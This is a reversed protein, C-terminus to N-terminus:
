VAKELPECIAVRNGARVLMPLYRDLMNYNFSVSLFMEGSEDFQPCIPLGMVKAAVSADEKICTYESGRRFIMIADPYSAKMAKFQRIIENM